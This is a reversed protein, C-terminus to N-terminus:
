QADCRAPLAQVREARLDNGVGVLPEGVAVVFGRLVAGKAKKLLEIRRIGGPFILVDVRGLDGRRQQSQLLRRLM